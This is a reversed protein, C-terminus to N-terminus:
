LHVIQAYLSASICFKALALASPNGWGLRFRAALRADRDPEILVQYIVKQPLGICRASCGAILGQDVFGETLM